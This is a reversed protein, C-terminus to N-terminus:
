VRTKIEKMNIIFYFYGGVIIGILLSCAMAYVGGVVGFIKLFIPSAIATIITQFLLAILYYGENGAYILISGIMMMVPMLPVLTLSIVKFVYTSEGFSKGLILEVLPEGLFFLSLGIVISGFFIVGMIALHYKQRKKAPYNNLEVLYPALAYFLTSYFMALISYIKFGGSFIGLAYSSLFIPILIQPISSAFSELNATIGLKYTKKFTMLTKKPCFEIQIRGTLSRFKKLQIIDAITPTLAGLLILVPIDMPDKIFLIVGIIYIGQGLLRALTPFVLDKRAVFFFELNFANSFVIFYGLLISNYLFFNNHFFIFTIASSAFISLVAVTFQMSLIDNAYTDPKRDAALERIGYSSLGLLGVPLFTYQAILIILNYNGYAEPGLARTIIPLAILGLAKSFLNALSRFSFNIFIKKLSVIRYYIKM